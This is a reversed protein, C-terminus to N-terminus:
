KKDLRENCDEKSIYFFMQVLIYIILLKLIRPTKKSGLLASRVTLKLYSIVYDKIRYIPYKQGSYAKFLFKYSKNGQEAVHDLGPTNFIEAVKLGAVEASLCIYYYVGDIYYSEDHWGVKELNGLYFLTGSSITLDVISLVYTGISIKKQIQKEKRNIQKDRFTVSLIKERRNFYKIDSSENIYDFIYELTEKNYITDQDFYLLESNGEYYATACMIRLALGIGVNKDFTFYRINNKHEEILLKSKDDPSNDFIYVKCGETIATKIRQYTSHDPKYLIIAIIPKKEIM